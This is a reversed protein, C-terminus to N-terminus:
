QQGGRDDDQKEYQLRDEHTWVNPNPRVINQLREYTEEMEENTFTHTEVPHIQWGKPEWPAEHAETLEDGFAAARCLTAVLLWGGFVIAAIFWAWLPFVVLVVVMAVALIIGLMRM